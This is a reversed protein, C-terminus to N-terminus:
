INRLFACTFIFPGNPVVVLVAVDAVLVTATSEPVEAEVRANM